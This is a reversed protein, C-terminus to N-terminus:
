TITFLTANPLATSVQNSLGSHRSLNATCSLLQPDLRSPSYTIVESEESQGIREFACQLVTSLAGGDFKVTGAASEGLADSIKGQGKHSFRSM